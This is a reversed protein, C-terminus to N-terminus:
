ASPYKKRLHKVSQKVLTQLTPVHLDSLRKIYVCSKGCSYQGLRAMLTDYDDFGAMIYLTINQKRPSFGILMWDGERGSEYKYHYRGFGVISAGWMEPKSNTASEMIKVIAQCDKRKQEDPIADLFAKVSANTAKTKLEAM